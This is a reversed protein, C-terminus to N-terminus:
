QSKYTKFSLEPKNPLTINSILGVQKLSSFFSTLILNILTAKQYFDLQLNYETMSFFM